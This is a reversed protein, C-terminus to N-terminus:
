SLILYVCRLLYETLVSTSARGVSLDVQDFRLVGRVNQNTGQSIVHGSRCVVAIYVVHYQGPNYGQKYWYCHGM